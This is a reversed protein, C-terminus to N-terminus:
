ALLLHLRYEDVMTRFGCRKRRGERMDHYDQLELCRQCIFDNLKFVVARRGCACFRHAVNARTKRQYAAPTYHDRSNPYRVIREAYTLSRASM